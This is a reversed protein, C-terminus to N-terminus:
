DIPIVPGGGDLGAYLAPQGTLLHGDLDIAALVASAADLRGVTEYIIALARWSEPDPTLIEIAQHNALLDLRDADAVARTAEALCLVPLGVAANEEEAVLSIVEGVHISERSFAVIASTDLVVRVVRGTM